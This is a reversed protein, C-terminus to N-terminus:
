WIKWPAKKKNWFNELIRKERINDMCQWFGNHKFAILQQKKVLKPLTNSEFIENKKNLKIFKFIEKSMIMFGGNIRSEEKYSKEVFSKVINDKDFKVYGWRPPIRVVSMTGIKKKKKHFKILKKINIDSLGDGYTLLFYNEKILNEIKKIRAGTMSNKGTDVLYIKVHKLSKDKKIYERIVNGKYGLAIIFENIGQKSLFKIIHWLIPKRGIKIMPKPRIHTEESFRLGKGGALIVAKM